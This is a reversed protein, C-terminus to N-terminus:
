AITFGGFENTAEEGYVPKYNIKYNYYSDTTESYDKITEIDIYLVKNYEYFVINLTDNCILPLTETDELTLQNNKNEYLPIFYQYLSNNLIKFSNLKSKNYKIIISDGYSNFNTIGLINIFLNNLYLSYYIKNYNTSSELYKHIPIFLIDNSYNVVNNSNILNIDDKKKELIYGDYINGIPKLTVNYYNINNFTQKFLIPNSITKTSNIEFENLNIKLKDFEKFSNKNEENILTDTGININKSSTGIYLTSKDDDDYSTGLYAYYLKGLKDLSVINLRNLVNNNLLFIEKNDLMPVNDNFIYESHYGNLKSTYYTETTYTTYSSIVKTKEQYYDYSTLNEIFVKNGLSILDTNTIEKNTTLVDKIEYTTISIEREEETYEINPYLINTVNLKSIANDDLNTKDFNYLYNKSQSIGTIENNKKTVTDNYQISFNLDNKYIYSSDYNEAYKNKMICWNMISNDATEQYNVNDIASLLIVDFENATNKYTKILETLVGELNVIYSIDLAYNATTNPERIYDFDIIDNNNVVTWLSTLIKLDTNEPIENLCDISSMNIIISNYFLDINSKTIKPLYCSCKLSKNYQLLNNNVNFYKKVFDDKSININSSSLIEYNDKTSNILIINPNGANKGLASINTNIDNIVWNNLSNIYPSTYIDNIFINNICDDYKTNYKIEFNLIKVKQNFKYDFTIMNVENFYNYIEDEDLISLDNFSININSSFYIQLKNNNGLYKFEYDLPIYMVNYEENDNLSYLYEYIKCLIRRSLVSLLVNYQNESYYKLIIPYTYTIDNNIFSLRINISLGDKSLIEISKSIPNSEVDSYDISLQTNDVNYKITVIEDNHNLENNEVNNKIMGFITSDGDSNYEFINESNTIDITKLFNFFSNNDNYKSKSFSNEFNTKININESNLKNLFSSNFLYVKMKYTTEDIYELTIMSYYKSVGDSYLYFAKALYLLTNTTTNYKNYEIELNNESDNEKGLIVKYLITSLYDNNLNSSAQYISDNTIEKTNGSLIDFSLNNSLVQKDFVNKEVYNYDILDNPDFKKGKDYIYFKAQIQGDTTKEYKLVGIKNSIDGTFETDFIDLFTFGSFNVSDGKLGIRQGLNALAQILYKSTIDNMNLSELNQLMNINQIGM